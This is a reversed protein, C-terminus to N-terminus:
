KGLAVRPPMKPGDFAKEIQKQGLLRRPVLLLPEGVVTGKGPRACERRYLDATTEGPTNAGPCSGDPHLSLQLATLSCRGNAFRVTLAGAKPGRLIIWIRSIQLGSIVSDPYPQQHQKLRIARCTQAFFEGYRAPLRHSGDSLVRIMVGHGARTLLRGESSRLQGARDKANYRRASCQLM